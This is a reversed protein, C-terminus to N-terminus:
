LELPGAGPGPRTVFIDCEVGTAEKYGKKIHAALADAQAKKVVTVTCGGFGGGTMRSGMVGEFGVALEVLTDLEPTSVEFDDRLSNHSAVMLKGLEEFQGAKLAVEAGEVRTNESIVHMARRYAVEDLGEKVSELMEMTADRLEKVEPFSEALVETAAKCQAVRDPYESGSLEHKVKSNAILVVVENANMPVPSGVQSRCDIKLVHGDQGMASIFQDMIGCPMDCFEHEAKQCRLAKTAPNPPVVGSIMELLTATAVELAASSSLGAGLPVDSAFVAQFVFKKGAPLDGAYQKVVGKVYNTWFPQPM